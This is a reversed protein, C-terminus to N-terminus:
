KIDCKKFLILTGVLSFLMYAIGLGIVRVIELSTMVNAYAAMRINMVMEYDLLKIFEESIGFLLVILLMPVLCFAIYLGNVKATSRTTFVFFIGLSTVALLLFLQLSFAKFVQGVFELDVGGGFGKLLTVIITPIVISSVSMVICFLMSLILKSFYYNTRSVGNALVNKATGSSFDAASIFIIVPLLLYLLNDNARMMIMPVMKGTLQTVVEEAGEMNESSIGISEMMGFSQLICLVFLFGMTIYIGKGRFVRYVDAKILNIM